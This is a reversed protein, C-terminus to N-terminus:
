GVEGLAWALARWMAVAENRRELTLEENPDGLRDFLEALVGALDPYKATLDTGEFAYTYGLRALEGVQGVFRLRPESLTGDFELCDAVSACYAALQEADHGADAGRLAPGIKTDLEYTVAPRPFPVSPEPLLNPRGLGLWVAGAVALVAALERSMM